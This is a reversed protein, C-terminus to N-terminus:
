DLKLVSYTSYPPHGTPNHLKKLTALTKFYAKRAVRLHKNSNYCSSIFSTLTAIKHKNKCALIVNRSM